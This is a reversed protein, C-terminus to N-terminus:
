GKREGIMLGTPGPLEIREVNVFGASRMWMVYEPESYSSGGETGVLMNISFLAAQRPSTRDADLIFDQVVLRGGPALAAHARRFLDRNEDPSLMHCIASAFVFDYSSGVNDARLDGARTRVRSEVGAERIHGEAIALVPPLDFVEAELADNAKAFAIAYAGSGGGVDIMRRVGSVDVADVVVPARMSANRHMAAIFAQTWDDGRDAMEVHHAPKGSKVADTLQAWRPWLSTNHRLAMRSDNRGAASLYREAIPSAAYVGDDKTLHGLAVLADLLMTTARPDTGAHNTIEEASAGKGALTFVDLEIATLIIRAEQYGRISRELDDPLMGSADRARMAAMAHDRNTRIEAALTAEDRNMRKSLPTGNVFHSEVVEPIDEPSLGSYWVGDPYVVMNPGRTCVGLSGTVTIQVSDALGRTGVECRLRDIVAASGRANCCPAGEPKQQDCVLVHYKFPQM